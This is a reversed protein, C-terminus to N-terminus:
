PRRAEIGKGLESKCRILDRKPADRRSTARRLPLCRRAISAVFVASSGVLQVKPESVPLGRVALGQVLFECSAMIDAKARHEDGLGTGQIDDVVVALTVRPWRRRSEAILEMIAMRMLVDAFSSGPVVSRTASVPPGLGGLFQIRRPMRFTGLLWALLTLGGVDARFTEQGPPRGDGLEEHGQPGEGEAM